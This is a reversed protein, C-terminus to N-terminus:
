PGMWKKCYEVSCGKWGPAACADIHKLQMNSPYRSHLYQLYLVSYTHQTRIAVGYMPFEGSCFATGHNSQDVISCNTTHGTQLALQAQAAHHADRLTM